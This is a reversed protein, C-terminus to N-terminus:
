LKTAPTRPSLVLGVACLATLALLEMGILKYDVKAAGVRANWENAPHVTTKWEQLLKQRSADDLNAQEIFTTNFNDKQNLWDLVEQDSMSELNSLELQRFTVLDRALRIQERVKDVDTAPAQHLEQAWKQGLKGLDNARIEAKWRQRAEAVIDEEVTIPRPAAWLWRYGLDETWPVRLSALAVALGYVALVIRRTWNMVEGEIRWLAHLCPSRGRPLAVDCMSGRPFLAAPSCLSDPPVLEASPEPFRIPRHPFAMLCPVFSRLQFQPPLQAGASQILATVGGM